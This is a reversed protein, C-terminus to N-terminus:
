KIVQGFHTSLISLDLDNIIGDGNLDAEGRWNESCSGPAPCGAGFAKMLRALDFDDVRDKTIENERNINGLLVRAPKGGTNGLVTAVSYTYSASDSLGMDIFTTPSYDGAILTGNRSITYNVAIDPPLIGPLISSHWSLTYEGAGTKKVQVDSPAPPYKQLMYNMASKVDLLGKGYINQDGLKLASNELSDQLEEVTLDPNASLLLAAGGAVHPAAVSTGSVTRYIVSPDTILGDFSWDSTLIGVGPAVLNPYLSRGSCGTTGRGSGDGSINDNWISNNIDTAGAAVSEPYAAPVVAAQSNGSAFVPFIGAHRVVQVAEQMLDGEGPCASDALGADWSNNVVHPSDDTFLDGDPDLIWQFGNIIDSEKAVTKNNDIYFIKGAIFKAEPAVGIPIGSADGGVLVGVVQTGHGSFMGTTLDVPDNLGTAPDYWSNTGGRYRSALDPHKSDVGTDMSAVVVGQGRYGLDWVERAKIRDLNWAPSDQAAEPIGGLTIVRDPLIEIDPYLSAIERIMDSSAELAISNVIWLPKIRDAKGRSKYGDLAKLLLRQTKVAVRQLERVVTKNRMAKSMGKLSSFDAPHEDSVRLIVRHRAFHGSSQLQQDLEPSIRGAWGSRPVFSFLFPSILFLVILYRKHNDRIIAIM